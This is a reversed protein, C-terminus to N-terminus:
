ETGSNDARAYYRTISDMLVPEPMNVIGCIFTDYHYVTRRLNQIKEDKSKILTNYNVESIAYVNKLSDYLRYISDRQFTLRKIETDNPPTDPGRPVILVVVLAIVVVAWILDTLKKLTKMKM